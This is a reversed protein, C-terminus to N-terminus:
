KKDKFSVLRLGTFTLVHLICLYGVLIMVTTQFGASIDFFSLVQDTNVVCDPEPDSVIGTFISAHNPNLNPLGEKIVGEVDSFLSAAGLACPM